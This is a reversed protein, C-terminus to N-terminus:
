LIAETKSKKKKKAEPRLAYLIKVGWGPILGAHGANSLAPKVM